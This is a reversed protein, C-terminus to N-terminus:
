RVTEPPQDSRGPTPAAAAAPAVGVWTGAAPFTGNVISHYGLSRYSEFQSEDFFQDATPQQPFQQKAKAHLQAYGEVDLAEDGSLVPKVYILHGDLREAQAPGDLRAAEATGDVVSYRIRGIAFHCGTEKAHEPTPLSAVPFEIPIGLDVRIKRMANQLDEFQYEPDAGADVVVIGHCRRRVLEYLALNEFHGGDSLYVFDKEATTGSLAESILSGLGRRPEDLKWNDAPQTSHPNPLWWGLRVNFITMVFAVLSSSHYGMSPSAAAGSITLARGLSIASGYEASSRYGLTANGSHLRSITFAAAKREQFQLNDTSPRVINIALNVIHFLHPSTSLDRMKINDCPDFGTFPHPKRESNSAGLYARVLRNGYMAHMSFANVGIISAVTVAFLALGALWALAVHASTGQLIVAFREAFPAGAPMKQAAGLVPSMLMSLGALLAVIFAACLVDLTHMGLRGIWTRVQERIQAGNKSWYGVAAGVLGTAGAAAGAWVNAELFTGFLPPLYIVLAHLLIWVAALIILFGSARAWWERDAETRTRRTFAAYGATALAFAGLLYPVAFTAYLQLDSYAKAPQDAIREHPFVRTAGWYCVLGGLAGAGVIVLVDWLDDRQPREPSSPVSPEVEQKAAHKTRVKRAIVGAIIGVIHIAAGSGAFIAWMWQQLFPRAQLEARFSAAVWPWLWSALVAACLLPIVFAAYFMNSLPRHGEAGPLDSATYALPVAALLGVAVTLIVGIQTPISLADIMAVNFRPAMVVAALLPLLVLWNILLNRVYTAVLTLADLSLGWVPSLYNSYGRLHRIPGPEPSTVLPMAGTPAPPPKRLSGKLQAEVEAFGERKIWASLWSGIYGGGSVTSLYHFRSLWGLQALGQLVGLNFTASRIGGGSFALGVPQREADMAHVRRRLDELDVPREDWPKEYLAELEDSLAECPGIRGSDTSQPTATSTRVDM